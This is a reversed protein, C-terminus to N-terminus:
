IKFYSFASLDSRCVQYPTAKHRDTRRIPGDDIQCSYRPSSPLGNASLKRHLVIHARQTSQYGQAIHLYPHCSDYPVEGYEAPVLDRSKHYEDRPGHIFRLVMKNRLMNNFLKYLKEEDKM